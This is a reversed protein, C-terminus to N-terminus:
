GAGAQTVQLKQAVDAAVPAAELLQQAQQAQAAQEDEAALREDEKLWKTPMGNIEALGKLIEDGDFRRMVEPNTQALPAMGEITRFLGVAEEARQARNLPSDYEIEFEGEAEVLLDPMPPLAGARSLIDLEREIMPGLAESQQRGVTPTLLAGKERARELVETATMQPTEVLIQFLTVLFADNIATRRQNEMELGIDVRAGTNLPVVNQKGTRSDVGGYNVANPTMNIGGLIGDETLLLPPDVSKQAARINTKSMENIMKIDPLVIMAPSRGYVEGPATVYRSTAYPFTHYGGEQVITAGEEAVYVSKFKMGRHDSKTVDIDKNPSVCHVFKFKTAPKSEATERIKEPTREGFKQVAQRATLSFNRYVTDIRGQFDEEIFIEGLHITRYRLGEGLLDDIFLCGTGFAGLGMYVEHQQSAFNAEPSYRASFLIKTVDEFWLRVDMDENLDPNSTTLRHWRQSRPTLMSEMAAAFKTLALAGTSDYIKETRKDGAPRNFIFNNQHPLIREAIESWHAEWLGRAAKLEAARKLIHNGM